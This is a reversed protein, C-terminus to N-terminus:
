PIEVKLILKYTNISGSVTSVKLYWCGEVDVTYILESLSKPEYDYDEESTLSARVKEDPSYLTLNLGSGRLVLQMRIEQGKILWIGYCDVIDLMYDINAIYNGPTIIRATEFANDADAALIILIPIIVKVHSNGNFYTVEAKVELQQSMNEPAQLIWNIWEANLMAKRPQKEGAFEIIAKQNGELLSKHYDGWNKLILNKWEYFYSPSFLYSAFLDVESLNYDESFVIRAGEVFGDDVDVTLKLSMSLVPSDKDPYWRFSYKWPVVTFVISAFNDVYQNKACTENPSYFWLPWDTSRFPKEFEWEVPKWKITEIKTQPERMLGTLKFAALLSVPVTISLLFITKWNKLNPTEM